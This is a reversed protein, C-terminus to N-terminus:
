YLKYKEILNSSEKKIIYENDFVDCVHFDIDDNELFRFYEEFRRTYGDSGKQSFPFLILDHKKTKPTIVFAFLRLVNTILFVLNLNILLNLYAIKNRM